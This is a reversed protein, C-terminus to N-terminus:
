KLGNLNMMKEVSPKLPTLSKFVHTRSKQKLETTQDTHTGPEKWPKLHMQLVAFLHSKAKNDSMQRGVYFLEAGVPWIKMFNSTQTNKQSELKM